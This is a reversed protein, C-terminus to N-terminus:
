RADGKSTEMPTDHPEAYIDDFTVVHGRAAAFAILRRARTPPMSQGREYHGINGPTCGIGEALGEQTVGLRARIRRIPNM